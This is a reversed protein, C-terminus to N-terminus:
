KRPKKHKVPRWEDGDLCRVENRTVKVLVPPKRTDVVGEITRWHVLLCEVQQPATMGKAALCVYIAQARRLAAIEAPNRAINEDKTLIVWGRATVEPIWTADPVETDHPYLEAYTRIAVGAARLGDPVVHGGLCRDVWYVRESGAGTV